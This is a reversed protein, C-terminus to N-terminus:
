DNEDDNERVYGNFKNLVEVIEPCKDYVEEQTHDCLIIGTILKGKASDPLRFFEEAIEECPYSGSVLLRSLEQELTPMCLFHAIRISEALRKIKNVYTPVPLKIGYIYSIVDEVSSPDYDWSITHVTQTKSECSERLGSNFHGKFYASESNALILSHCYIVKGRTTIRVDGTKEASDWMDLIMRERSFVSTAFEPIAARVYQVRLRRLNQSFVVITNDDFSDVRVHATPDAFVGQFVYRTKGGINFSLRGSRGSEMSCLMGNCMFPMNRSHFVTKVASEVLVHEIQNTEKVEQMRHVRAPSTSFDIRCLHHDEHHVGPRAMTDNKVVAFLRDLSKHTMGREFSFAHPVPPEVYLQFVYYVADGGTFHGVPQMNSTVLSLDFFFGSSVMNWPLSPFFVVGYRRLTTVNTPDEIRTLRMVSVHDIRILDFKKPEKNDQGYMCVIQNGDSAWGDMEDMDDLYFFRRECLAYEVKLYGHLMEVNQEEFKPGDDSPRAKKVSRMEDDDPHLISLVDSDSNSVHGDSEDSDNDEDEDEDEDDDEDEEDPTPPAPPAVAYNYSPM